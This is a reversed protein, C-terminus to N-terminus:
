AERRILTVTGAGGAPPTRRRLRGSSMSYLVPLVVLTLLTSSVLGGIVVTALPKQVEAGAGTALAMPVFGLSAVLATMLVPRLRTLTGNRVAEDIPEGGEARRNISSLLVLGNLVAVGSLAIFGVAASISFPMGRVALALVGGTLALPVATFVLLGLRLSNFAAFLLGLILAFCVPVVVALRRKAAALNEFQGGWEIWGGAPAPIDALARQAEEVFSALDRGRVNCQVVVRRKGNERSVQNLGERSRITTVESLPIFMPRRSTFGGASEEASVVPPAAHVSSLDEPLPVPLAAVADPDARLSEPLRVIIEFRRDGEFVQGASRGGLAISVVQQVDEVSLGRRAIAGRDVDISLTPLGATQDVKVDAAGPIGRLVGAMREAVGQMADFDDGFVKIAVDGRVGAILENFRMQIPQTFEYNNGPLRAVTAEILRILAAKRGSPRVGDETHGHGHEDGHSDPRADEAELAAAAGLLERESRWQRRPKLIVFTDSVNFPMPDSALEATGTKSFILSVEPINLVARELDFQMEQAQSLSTSPIRMAHLAIDGEDLTPVFVQGLRTFVLAALICAGVSVGVVSRRRRMAWGLVPEFGRRVGRFIRPEGAHASGSAFIAVMAPVFTLSLVFASVLAFIVTLAMPHFLKGEVDTLALIPVYVVIIIAQGYVTPQIMEKTADITERLREDLTLARGLAQRREGLRRLCNEVIIVSGDVILGFDIAGLSMLNGSIGAQVMGTAALLMSLPIASACILAARFNGLLVFLVVIVLLAGEFLNIRVTAITDNVLRTRDLVPRARVGPPVSRAVEELREGVAVAVARSNEGIRMIATGIVVEEGNESASGTRQERGVGVGEPGTLDHVHIPVGGRSGVVVERIDEATGLRGGSRVVHAEGFREVYGAGINENNRELAGVVDEFTFGFSVLRDPEVQVHWQRVFGGISDVGALGRVTRLQPVIIWDQVERLYSAFEVDTELRRGEPTLFSGDGQWGPEGEATTAGAGRPHEYEVVYMFVEGLGTAIPGMSPQAGEPLDEQAERLREAIQQRAFFIDLDDEFIATVQSFGNRSLSRTSRLGPTGALANEVIFTIQKEVEEPSLSPAATNIQVQNNTIDPVADIPLRALSSLGLLAGVMTLAVVWWRNRVSFNLIAGIM